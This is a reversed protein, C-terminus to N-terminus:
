LQETSASSLSSIELTSLLENLLKLATGSVTERGWGSRAGTASWLVKGSAVDLVRLTLAVAPEGEIGRKYGWEEVSGTLAYIFHQDRAWTLAQQYRRYEDIEPLLEDQPSSYFDINAVGHVHMLTALMERVRESAQPSQSYNQIPLLVWPESTHAPQGSQIVTTSCGLVLSLVILYLITKFYEMKAPEM